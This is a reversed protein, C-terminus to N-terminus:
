AKFVVDYAKVREYTEKALRAMGEKGFQDEFDKLVAHSALNLAVMVELSTHRGSAIVNLLETALNVADDQEPDVPTTTPAPETIVRRRRYEGMDVVRPVKNDKNM